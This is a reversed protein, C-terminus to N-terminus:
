GIETTAPDDPTKRKLRAQFRRVGALPSFCDRYWDFVMRGNDFNLTHPGKRDPLRIEGIPTESYDRESLAMVEFAFIGNGYDGLFSQGFRILREGDRVLAGAMRAGRPSIRVPSKPHPVFMGAIDDASWLLLSNSGVTGANGFLYIRGGHELLTPDAVRPSGEVRIPFVETMGSPSMRYARLESWQAIEPIVLEESGARFRAPYSFHGGNPSVRRHQDGAVLVIEGIANKRSLAEVLIGPPDRIFFPDAYFLYNSPIPLTQWTAAEPFASALLASAPKAPAHSVQWRKEFMAGYAAHRLFATAMGAVFKLVQGNSPLRHNRGKSTKHLVEGALANAIARNILLPSHRYAEILSRRYSHPQLKTEAFAVVKGGYLENSLVQVTQDMTQRGHLMEWFGAPRGRYTDQDGHQYSLIPARLRDKPPVTLLGMGFKMIVDFDSAGLEDILEDPLEQWMGRYRSEFATQHVIRKNCDTLSVMQTMPNRISILNLLYCGLHKWPRRRPKTNTCAFVAIEECGELANVAELGFRPVLAFDTLVAVKLKQM